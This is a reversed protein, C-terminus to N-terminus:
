RPRNRRSARNSSPADGPTPTLRGDLWDYLEQLSSLTIGITEGQSDRGRALLELSTVAGQSVTTLLWDVYTKFDAKSIARAPPPPATAFFEQAFADVSVENTNDVNVQVLGCGSGLVQQNCIRHRYIDTRLKASSSDRWAIFHCRDHLARMPPNSALGKCLELVRDRKKAETSLQRESSKFEVLSFFHYNTLLQDALASRDQGDLPFRQFAYGQQSAVDYLTEGFLKIVSDEHQM